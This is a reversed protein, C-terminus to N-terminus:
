TNTNENLGLRWDKRVIGQSQSNLSGVSNHWAFALDKSVFAQWLKKGMYGQSLQKKHQKSALM